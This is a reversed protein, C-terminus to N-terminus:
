DCLEIIRFRYWRPDRANLGRVIALVDDLPYPADGRVGFYEMTPDTLERHYEWVRWKGTPKPCRTIEIIPEAVKPEPEEEAELKRALYCRCNPHVNVEITNEDIIELYPFILRIHNGLFQGIEEYYRCTLCVKTDMVAHYLWVDHKSFFTVGYRTPFLRRKQAGEVVQQVARVAQVIENLSM